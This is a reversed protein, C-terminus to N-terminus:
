RFRCKFSPSAWTWRRSSRYHLRRFYVANAERKSIKEGMGSERSEWHPFSVYHIMVGTQTIRGEMFARHAREIAGAGNFEGRLAANVLFFDDAWREGVM